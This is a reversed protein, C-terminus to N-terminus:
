LWHMPLPMKYIAQLMRAIIILQMHTHAREHTLIWRGDPLPQYLLFLYSILRRCIDCYAFYLTHAPMSVPYTGIHEFIFYVQGMDRFFHYTTARAHPLAPPPPPPPPLRIAPQAFAHFGFYLSFTLQRSFTLDIITFRWFPLWAPSVLLTPSRPL